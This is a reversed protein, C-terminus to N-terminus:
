IGFVFCVHDLGFAPENEKLVSIRILEGRCCHIERRHRCLQTKTATAREYWWSKAESLLRRGKLAGGQMNAAAPDHARVAGHLLGQRGGASPLPQRHEHGGAQAPRGPPPHPRKTKLLNMWGFKSFTAPANFHFLASNRDLPCLGPLGQPGPRRGMPPVLGTHQVRRQDARPPAPGGKLPRRPRPDGVNM